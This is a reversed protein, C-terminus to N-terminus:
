FYRQVGLTVVINQTLSPETRFKQSYIHEKIMLNMAMRDDRTMFPMPLRQGIGLVGGFNPVGGQSIATIGAVAYPYIGGAVRSGSRGAFDFTYGGLAEFALMWSHDFAASGLVEESVSSQVTGIGGTFQFFLPAALPFWEAYAQGFFNAGLVEAHYLGVAGGYATLGNRELPLPASRKKAEERLPLPKPEERPVPKPEPKPPLAVYVTEREVPKAKPAARKKTPATSQAIAPASWAFVLALSL